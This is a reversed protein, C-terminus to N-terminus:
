LQLNSIVRIRSGIMIFSPIYTDHTRLDDWDKRGTLLVLVAAQWLLLKLVVQGIWEENFKNYVMGDSAM